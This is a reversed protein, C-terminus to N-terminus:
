GVLMAFVSFPRSRIFFNKSAKCYNAQPNLRFPLAAPHTPGIEDAVM